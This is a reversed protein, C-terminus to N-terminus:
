RQSTAAHVQGEMEAAITDVLLKTLIEMREELTLENALKPKNASGKTRGM